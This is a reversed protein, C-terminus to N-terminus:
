RRSGDEFFVGGDIACYRFIITKRNFVGSFESQVSEGRELMGQNDPPDGSVRHDMMELYELPDRHDKLGPCVRHDRKESSVLNGPHVPLDWRELPVQNGQPSPFPSRTSAQNALSAKPAPYVRSVPHVQHDPNGPSEM